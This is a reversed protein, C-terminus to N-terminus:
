QGKPIAKIIEQQRGTQDDPGTVSRALLTETQYGLESLLSFVNDESSGFDELAFPHLEIYIARCIGGSLTSRWGDLVDYEAGEVDIKLVNPPSRESDRVLSDGTCVPLEVSEQGDTTEYALQHKAPHSNINMEMTGSQDAIASQIVSAEVQNQEINQQLTIVNDPHPEVAYLRVNRFCAGIICTYRGFNAGVDYFVDGRELEDV